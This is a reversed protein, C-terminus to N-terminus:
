NYCIGHMTNAVNWQGHRAVRQAHSQSTQLSIWPLYTRGIAPRLVALSQICVDKMVVSLLRFNLKLASTSFSNSGFNTYVKNFTFLKLEQQAKINEMCEEWVPLRWARYLEVRMTKDLNWNREVGDVDWGVFTYGYSQFEMCSYGIGELCREYRWLDEREDGTM